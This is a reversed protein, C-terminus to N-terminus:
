PASEDNKKAWARWERIERAMAIISTPDMPIDSADPNDIFFGEVNGISENPMCPLPKPQPMAPQTAAEGLTDLAAEPSSADKPAADKALADLADKALALVKTCAADTTHAASFRPAECTHIIEQFAERTNTLSEL